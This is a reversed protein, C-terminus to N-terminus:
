GGHREREQAPRRRRRGSEGILDPGKPSMRDDLKSSTRHHGVSQKPIRTGVGFDQRNRSDGFIATYGIVVFVSFLLAVGVTVFMINLVKKLVRYEEPHENLLHESNDKGAMRNDLLVTGIKKLLARKGSAPPSHTARHAVGSEDCIMIEIARGDMSVSSADMELNRTGGRKARPFTDDARGGASPPTNHTSDLAMHHEHQAGAAAAAAAAAAVRSAKAKSKDDAEGASPAFHLVSGVDGPRAGGVPAHSVHSTVPQASSSITTTTTTTTPSASRPRAPTTDIVLFRNQYYVVNRTAGGHPVRGSLVNRTGKERRPGGGGGATRSSPSSSSTSHAGRTDPAGAPNDERTLPSTNSDLYHVRLM